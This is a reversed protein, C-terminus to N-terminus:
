GHAGPAVLLTVLLMVLINERRVAMGGRQGQSDGHTSCLRHTTDCGTGMTSEGDGLSPLCDGYLSAQTAEELDHVRHGAGEHPPPALCRSSLMQEQRQLPDASCLWSSEGNYIFSPYM